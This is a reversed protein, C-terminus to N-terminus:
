SEKQAVAILRKASNDYEAGTWDGYVRVASFGCEKLLAIMEAASYIRHGFEFTQLRGNDLMMWRNECWSWNRTIKSERLWIKGEVTHWERPMWIRAIIEKGITDILLTGGKRLSCFANHLVQKDDEIADFYGFATFMNVIADFAEPRCFRRMDDRVFEINLGEHEAQRRARALYAETLDVGVVSFKRRALELTHRGIGCCLDLIKADNPLAMLRLAQEVQEAAAALNEADFMKPAFTEWFCENEYWQNNMM